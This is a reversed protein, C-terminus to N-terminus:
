VIVVSPGSPTEERPMEQLCCSEGSSCPSAVEEQSDDRIYPSNAGHMSIIEGM